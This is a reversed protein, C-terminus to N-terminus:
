KFTNKYPAFAKKSMVSCLRLRPTIVRRATNRSRAQRTGFTTAVDGKAADLLVQSRASHRLVADVLKVDVNVAIAIDVICELALM